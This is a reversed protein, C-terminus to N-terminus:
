STASVHINETSVEVAFRVGLATKTTQRLRQGDVIQHRNLDFLQGKVQTLLVSRWFLVKYYRAKEGVHLSQGALQAFQEQTSVFRPKFPFNKPGKESTM